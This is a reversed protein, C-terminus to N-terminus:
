VRNVTIPGFMAGLAASAPTTASMRVCGAALQSELMAPMQATNAGQTIAVLDGEKLNMLDAPMTAVKLFNAGNFQIIEFAGSPKISDIV